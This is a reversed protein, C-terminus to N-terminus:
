HEKIKYALITPIPEYGQKNVVLYLTKGIPDYTGGIIQKPGADNIPIEFKGYEYPMIEHTQIEGSAARSIDDLNFIWYYGYNDAAQHACYGGCLRGQDTTIKYGVGGEHGGSSGIVVYSRTSPVIFGYAGTSLHTWLKNTLNTNYLYEETTGSTHGIPRALNYDILKTTTLTAPSHPLAISREPYFAFASPGVSTRGIIPKGSSDGTIYSGKLVTQWEPPIPSIWGAAHARADYGDFGSVSSGALNGPEHLVMTTHTDDQLADYYEYTNIVLSRGIFAMGGIRDMGQTNGSPARNLVTTFPQINTATNFTVTDPSNVLSPISFEAVAQHQAHGVLFLTDRNAGLAIKGQSYGARSVGYTNNPIKFGGIYEFDSKTILPLKLTTASLSNSPGSENGASDYATIRYQHTTYANLGQDQYNTSTTAAINAGDRFVRYGAVAKNDTAASWNLDISTIRVAGASLRSPASPAVTDRSQAIATTYTTLINSPQSQNGAADYAVVTYQYPTNPSLIKDQYRTSTTTTIYAGNRFVRYDIVTANDKSATWSITVSRESAASAALGHPQTPPARDAEGDIGANGSCGLLSAICISSFLYLRAKSLINM